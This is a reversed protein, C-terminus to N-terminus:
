NAQAALVMTGTYTGAALTAPTVIELLLLDTRSSVFNANGASITQNFLLLSASSAGFGSATQTFATFTTPSGTTVEGFVDASPINDPTSYGDTLAATSSAFYGYLKVSTRSPLLAWTTTIPVAASGAITSGNVLPFTVTSLSVSVTLSETLTANLTVNVTNSNLSAGFAQAQNLVLSSLAVICIALNKIQAPFRM